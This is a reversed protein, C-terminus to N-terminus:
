LPGCRCWAVVIYRCGGDITYSALQTTCDSNSYIAVHIKLDTKKQQEVQLGYSNVSWLWLLGYRYYVMVVIPITVIGM